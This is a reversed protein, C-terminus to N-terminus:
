LSTDALEVTVHDDMKTAALFADWVEPFQQDATRPDLRQAVAEGWVYETVGHALRLWERTTSDSLKLWDQVEGVRVAARMHATYRLSTLLGELIDATAMGALVERPSVTTVSLGSANAIPVPDGWEAQNSLYSEIEEGEVRVRMSHFGRWTRQRAREGLRIQELLEGSPLAAPDYEAPHKKHPDPAAGALCYYKHVTSALAKCKERLARVIVYWVAKKKLLGIVEGSPKVFYFVHGEVGYLGRTAVMQAPLDSVSILVESVSDLGLAVALGRGILPNLGRELGPAPTLRASQWGIAVITAKTGEFREVHLTHPSLHEFCLTTRGVALLFLLEEGRNRPAPPPSLGPLCGKSPEVKAEACPESCLRGLISDCLQAIPLAFSFRGQGRYAADDLDTAGSCSPRFVVHVNKSGAVVLYEGLLPDWVAGLHGSEGNAKGMVAVHSAESLDATFFRKWAPESGKGSAASSSSAAASVAEGSGSAAPAIEDPIQDDDDGLGGTFKTLGRVVLNLAVTVGAPHIDPPVVALAAVSSPPPEAQKKGKRKKKQGKSAEAAAAAAARSAKAELRRTQLRIAEEVGDVDVVAGSASSVIGEVLLAPPAEGLAKGARAASVLDASCARLELFTLGRPVRERIVEDREYIADDTRGTRGPFVKVDHIVRVLTDSAKAGAKVLAAQQAAPLDAVRQDLSAGVLASQVKIDPHVRCWTLRHLLAEFSDPPLGSGALDSTKLFVDTLVKQAHDRVLENSLEAARAFVADLARAMAAFHGNRRTSHHNTAESV